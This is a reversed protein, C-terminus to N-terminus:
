DGAFLWQPQDQQQDMAALSDFNSYTGSGMGTPMLAAHADASWSSELDDLHSVWSIEEYGGTGLRNMAFLAGLGALGRKNLEPDEKFLERHASNRAFPKVQKYIPFVLYALQELLRLESRPPISFEPATRSIECWLSIYSQISEYIEVVTTNPKAFGIDKMSTMNEMLPLLQPIKMGRLQTEGYFNTDNVFGEKHYEPRDRLQEMSMMVRPAIWVKYSRHNIINFLWILQERVTTYRVPLMMM